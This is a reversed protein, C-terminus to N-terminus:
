GDIWERQMGSEREGVRTIVGRSFIIITLLGLFSFLLERYLGILERICCM